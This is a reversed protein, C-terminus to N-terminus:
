KKIIKVDKNSTLKATVTKNDDSTWTLTYIKGNKDVTVITFDTKEEITKKLDSKLMLGLGNYKTTPAFVPSLGEKISEVYQITSKSNLGNEAKFKAEETQLVIYISRAEQVYKAEKADNVYGFVAPVAIAALIALIVLVVIIEVLTFGKKNSKRQFKKLTEKM